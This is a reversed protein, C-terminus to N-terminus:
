VAGQREPSRAVDSKALKDVAFAKAWTAFAAVGSAIM